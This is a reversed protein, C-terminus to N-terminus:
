YCHKQRFDTLPSVCFSLISVESTGVHKRTGKIGGTLIRGHANIDADWADEILAQLKLVSPRSPALRSDVAALSAWLMQINRYGCFHAGENPLKSVHLANDTCLYAVEIDSDHELLCALNSIVGSLANSNDEDQLINAIKSPMQEEFAHPGLEKKQVITLLIADAMSTCKRVGLRRFDGHVVAM